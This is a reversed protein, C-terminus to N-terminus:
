LGSEGEPTKGQGGGFGGGFGGGIDRRPPGGGQWACEDEIQEMEADSLGYFHGVEHIVTDVICDAVPEGTEDCWALIPQRYLHITDPLTGHYDSGRETLPWGRYLGLLDFRTECEMEELTGADPWEEVLFAINSLRDRFDTPLADIATAVTREFAQRNV